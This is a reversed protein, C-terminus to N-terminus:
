TFRIATQHILTNDDPCVCDLRVFTRNLAMIKFSVKDDELASELCGDILVFNAWRDIGPVSPRVIIRQNRGTNSQVQFRLETFTDMPFTLHKSADVWDTEGEERYSVQVAVPPVTVSELGGLVFQEAQVEGIRGDSTEWVLKVVLDSTKLVRKFPVVVRRVASPGIKFFTDDDDQIHCRYSLQSENVIDLIACSWESSDLHHSSSEELAVALNDFSSLASTGHGKETALPVFCISTIALGPRVTVPIEVKLTRVLYSPVDELRHSYEINVAISSGNELCGCLKMHLSASKQAPILTPVEDFSVCDPGSLVLYTVDTLNVNQVEVDICETQGVILEVHGPSSLPRLLPQADHIKLRVPEFPILVQHVKFLFMSAEKLCLEGKTKPTVYLTVSRGKELPELVLDISDCDVKDSSICLKKVSLRFAFPNDLIIRIQIPEGVVGIPAEEKREPRRGRSMPMYVLPSAKRTTEVTEVRSAQLQDVIVTPNFCDMRCPLTKSLTLKASYSKINSKLAEQDSTTLVQSASSLLQLALETFRAYEHASEALGMAQSLLSQKLDLWSTSVTPLILKSALSHQELNNLHFVLRKRYFNAKREMGFSEFKDILGALVALKEQVVLPRCSNWGLSLAASAEGLDGLALCVDAIQSQVAFSYRPLVSKDYLVAVDKLRGPLGWWIERRTSTDTSEISHYQQLCLSVQLGEQAGAHWLHDGASKTEESAGVYSTVAENYAGALLYLDGMLKFRRGAFRLHIKNQAERPLTSDFDRPSPLEAQSGIEQSLQDLRRLLSIAFDNLMTQLYFQVQDLDQNPIVVVDKHNDEAQEGPEFAFHRTM